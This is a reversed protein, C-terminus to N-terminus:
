SDIISSAIIKEENCIGISNLYESRGRGSGGSRWVLGFRSASAFKVGFILGCVGGFIIEIGVCLKGVAVCLGAWGCSRVVNHLRSIPRKLPRAPLRRNLLRVVPM